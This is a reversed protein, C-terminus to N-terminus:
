SPIVCCKEGDADRWGWDVPDGFFSPGDYGGEWRDGSLLSDVRYPREREREKRGEKGGSDTPKGGGEKRERRMWMGAVPPPLLPPSPHLHAERDTGKRWEASPRRSPREGSSRTRTRRWDFRYEVGGMGELEKGGFGIFGDVYTTSRKRRGPDVM